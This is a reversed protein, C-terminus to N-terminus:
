KDSKRQSQLWKMYGGPTKMLATIRLRLEDLQEATIYEEDFADILRALTESVSGRSIIAYRIREQWTFRGHGEAIQVGASRSSRTLQGTLKFKEEVPFGKLLAKIERKLERAMQWVILKEFTQYPM